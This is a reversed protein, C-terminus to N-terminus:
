VGIGEFPEFQKVVQAVLVFDDIGFRPEFAQAPVLLRSQTCTGRTHDELNQRLTLLSTRGPNGAHAIAVGIEGNAANRSVEALSVQLWGAFHPWHTPRSTNTELYSPRRLGDPRAPFGM